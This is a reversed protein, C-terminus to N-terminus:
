FRHVQRACPAAQSAAMTDEFPRLLDGPCFCRATPTWVSVRTATAANDTEGSRAASTGLRAPAPMQPPPPNVILLSLKPSTVWPAASQKLVYIFSRPVSSNSGPALNPTVM